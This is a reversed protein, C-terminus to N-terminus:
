EPKARAIDGASYFRSFHQGIIEEARYGKIHEAGSNWSVVRGQPDLTFIAYDHVGEVLIRFREESELLAQHTAPARAVSDSQPARDAVGGILLGLSSRAVGFSSHMKRILSFKAKM